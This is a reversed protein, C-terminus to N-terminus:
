NRIILKRREPSGKTPWKFIPRLASCLQARRGDLQARGCLLAGLRGAPRSLQAALQAKARSPRGRQMRRGPTASPPPPPQSSKLAIPAARAAPASPGHPQRSAAMETPCIILLTSFRGSSSSAASQKALLLRVLTLHASSSSSSARLYNGKHSSPSNDMTRLIVGVAPLLPSLLSLLL